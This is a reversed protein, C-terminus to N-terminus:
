LIGFSCGIIVILPFQCCLTYLVLLFLLVCVCCLICQVGSHAFLCLYHLVVHARRCFVPTFVNKPPFRSLLKGHGFYRCLLLIQRTTRLRPSWSLVIVCTDAYHYYLRSLQCHEKHNFTRRTM